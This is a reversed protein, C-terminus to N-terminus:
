NRESIPRTMQFTGHDYKSRYTSSFNTPSAKGEYRYSGGAYWGLEAGGTFQFPNEGPEVRLPVTYSFSMVQSYRARFRAKYNADASATVLCRLKGHHGNVESRWVGEWAGTIGQRPAPQSAAARWDRNFTSCGGMLLGLAVAAVSRFVLRGFADWNM